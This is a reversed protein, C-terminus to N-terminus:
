NAPTAGAVANWMVYASLVFMIFPLAAWDREWLFYKLLRYNSVLWRYPHKSPTQGPFLDPKTAVVRLHDINDHNFPCDDLADQYEDQLKKITTSEDRETSSLAMLKNYVKSIKRASRHQQEGRHYFNGSSEILTTIIIFVSNIITIALLMQSKHRDLTYINPVLSLSIVFLSLMSIIFNSHRQRRDLRLNAQFRADRTIETRRVLDEFPTRQAFRVREQEGM